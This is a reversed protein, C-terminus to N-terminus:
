GVQCTRSPSSDPFFRGASRAAVGGIPAGRDPPRATQSHSHLVTSPGPPLHSPLEGSAYRWTPMIAAARVGGVMIRGHIAWSFCCEEKQQRQPVKGWRGARGSTSVVRGRLADIAHRGISRRTLHKRPLVNGYSPSLEARNQTHKSQPKGGSLPSVECSM